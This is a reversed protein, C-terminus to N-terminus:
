VRLKVGPANGANAATTKAPAAAPRAAPTTAELLNDRVELSIKGKKELDAVYATVVTRTLTFSMVSPPTVKFEDMVQKTLADLSAHKADTIMQHIKASTEEVKKAHRTANAEVDKGLGGHYYVCADVKADKELKALKNLSTLTDGIHTYFLVGHKDFTEAGYFADGCYLVKDPTVVGISGPTHGPLAVVSLKAGCVEIDQDAHSIVDTVHSPQAELFKNRLGQFPEAGSCFCTPEHHPHEIYHSEFHTAFIKVSPHVRQLYQNGGCHDAHSHTNIIAGLSIDEKKLERDVQKATQEDLGSDFLIATKKSTKADEVIYAGISLKGSWYRSNGVAQKFVLPVEQQKNQKPANQQPQQKAQKHSKM